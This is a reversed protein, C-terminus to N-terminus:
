HLPRTTVEPPLVMFSPFHPHGLARLMMAQPEPMSPVSDIIRAITELSVPKAGMFTPGLLKAAPAASMNRQDIAVWRQLLTQKLLQTLGGKPPERSDEPFLPIPFGSPDPRDSASGRAHDSRLRARPPLFEVIRSRDRRRRIRRRG